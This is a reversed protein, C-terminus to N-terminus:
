AEPEQERLQHGGQDQLDEKPQFREKPPQHKKTKVLSGNIMLQQLKKWTM